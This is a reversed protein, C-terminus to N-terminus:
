NVGKILETLSDFVPIGLHLAEVVERRTGNSNEWGPVLLVADCCSLWVMSNQQYRQKSIEEGDRLQYVFQHDFWPCFPAFGALLVETSLRMGKRINTLTGITTYSSCVGAVYVKKM